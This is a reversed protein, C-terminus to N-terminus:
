FRSFCKVNDQLTTQSSLFLVNFIFGALTVQLWLVFNKIRRHAIFLVVINIALQMGTFALCSRKDEASGQVKNVSLDIITGMLIGGLASVGLAGAFKPFPSNPKEWSPTISELTPM